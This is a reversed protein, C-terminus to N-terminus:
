LVAYAESTRGIDDEPRTWQTSGCEENYFYVKGTSSMISKWGEPLDDEEEEDDLDVNVTSDRLFSSFSTEPSEPEAKKPPPPPPSKPKTLSSASIIGLDIKDLDATIKDIQSLFALASTDEPEPERVSTSQARRLPPRVPIAMRTVKNLGPPELLVSSATQPAGMGILFQPQFNSITARSPEKYKGIGLDLVAESQRSPLVMGGASEPTRAADPGSTPNSGSVTSREQPTKRAHLQKSPDSIEVTHREGKFLRPDPSDNSVTSAVSFRDTVPHLASERESDFVPAPLPLKRAKINCRVCLRTKVKKDHKVLVEHYASCQSCIVEGCSRCNHKKRVLSFGRTCIACNSRDNVQVWKEPRTFKLLSLRQSDIYRRINAGRQGAVDAMKTLLWSPLRGKHDGISMSMLEIVEGEGSVIQKFTHLNFAKARILQHSEELSGLESLQVSKSLRYGIRQGEKDIFEDVAEVYVFDRHKAISPSLSKLCHWKICSFRNPHEATRERLVHVVMGDMFEVENACAEVHRFTKTDETILVNMVEDFTAQINCTGRVATHNKGEVNARAINVGEKQRSGRWKIHGLDNCLLLASDIENSIYDLYQDRRKESLTEIAFSDSSLPFM